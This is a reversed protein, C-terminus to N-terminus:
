CRSESASSPLRRSRRNAPAELLAKVLEDGIEGALNSSCISPTIGNTSRDGVAHRARIRRQRRVAFQVMGARPRATKRGPRRRCIAATFRHADPPMARDGCSRRVIPEDTESLANRRLRRLRRLVRVAARPISLRQRVDIKARRATLKRFIWSSISTQENTIWISCNRSWTSRKTSSSKRAKRRAFMSACAAARAITPPSRFRDDPLRPIRQGQWSKSEFGDPAGALMPEPFAKMRIAAHPCVLSACGANSAFIRTGFQFKPPSAGNKSDHREPPSRAM